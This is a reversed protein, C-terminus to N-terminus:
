GFHLLYIKDCNPEKETSVPCSDQGYPREPKLDTEIGYSPGKGTILYFFYGHFKNFFITILGISDGDFM